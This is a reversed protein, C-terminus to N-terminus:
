LQAFYEQSSAIVALVAEERAGAQLARTFLDLGAADAPRHLARQYFSQVVGQTAEASGGIAAALADRSAGKALAEGFTAAGSADIDRGLLSRYLSSLLGTNDGGARQFYEASSLLFARVQGVTGGGGLFSVFAELGAADASRGLLSVYLKDILKKRYEVSNAIASGL